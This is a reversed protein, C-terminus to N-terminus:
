LITESIHASVVYHPENVVENIKLDAAVSCLVYAAAQDLGLEAQLHEILQKIASQAADMLSEAVGTTAFVPGDPATHRDIRYQPSQVSRNSDVTLRVTVSIPTEIATLCVEGDGQAAHGDGISFLGGDVAVPLWLESGATLYKIDMNGGVHRPPITSCPNEGPVVGVTGPFPDVPIEIGDVFTACGDTIEWHHIFPEDLLEPLLGRGGDGRVLTYGWDGATVALIEVHLADGTAAGVIEVPGTLCHGPFPKDAAASATMGPTVDNGSGAQCDFQVVSGSEVTAAPALSDDWERHTGDDPAVHYDVDWDTM